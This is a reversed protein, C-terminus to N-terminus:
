KVSLKLYKCILNGEADNLHGGNNIINNTQDPQNSKKFCSIMFNFMIKISSITPILNFPVPLTNGEKVYEM